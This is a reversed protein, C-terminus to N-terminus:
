TFELDKEKKLKVHFMRRLFYTFLTVLEHNIGWCYDRIMPLSSKFTKVFPDLKSALELNDEPNVIIYSFDSNLDELLSYTEQFSDSTFLM